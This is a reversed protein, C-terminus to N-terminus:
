YLSCGHLSDLCLSVHPILKADSTPIIDEIATEIEGANVSPIAYDLQAIAVTSFAIAGILTNSRM